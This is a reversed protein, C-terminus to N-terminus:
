WAIKEMMEELASTVREDDETRLSLYLSFPDAIGNQAFPEPDYRWIELECDAGESASLEEVGMQKWEKWRNISIAFVPLNPPSIMSSQSLASLGAIIKPHGNKIWVHKKVPSQLFVKAEDWLAKRSSFLWRCERGKRYVEGIRAGKLEEFARGMTMPTYNLKEALISPSLSENTKRVLSYIVVAQTAPGLFTHDKTHLKRFHERLDVGFQPLYMQNGPVVFPVHQEVLRKRNYSSIVQQVYITFGKWIKQVQEWHKCITAPTEITDQKAIMLLCPNNFVSIEYFDYSDILFFPLDGRKTWPHPDISANIVEHFYHQLDRLLNEMGREIVYKRFVLM